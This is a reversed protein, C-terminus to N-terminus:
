VLAMVSLTTIVNQWKLKLAKKLSRPLSFFSSPLSVMEM